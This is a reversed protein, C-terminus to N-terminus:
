LIDKLLDRAIIVRQIESSGEYITTIRVDRVMRELPYERIYGVGGMLQLATYCAENAKESAFLKAMSAATGFPKGQEKDYAAQMILLRAAELETYREVLM